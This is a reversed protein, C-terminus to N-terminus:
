GGLVLCPADFQYGAATPGVFFDAMIATGDPSEPDVRHIVAGREVTDNPEGVFSKTPLMGEYDVADLQGVAAAIGARTLDGNAVAQELVAKMNYSMVWGAVYGLNPIEGSRNAEWAARMADHGPSEGAFGANQATQFYAQSLLQTLSESQQLLVPHFTPGTGIYM